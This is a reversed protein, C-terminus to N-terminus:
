VGSDSESDQRSLKISRMELMVSHGFQTLGWFLAVGGGRLNFAQVTILGHALFQVKITDFISDDISVSGDRKGSRAYLLETLRNKVKIDATAILLTPAIIAFLERWSLRTSWTSKIGSASYTGKVTLSVDLPALDTISPTQSVAKRAEALESQAEAM